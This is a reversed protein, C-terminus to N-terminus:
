YDKFMFSVFYIDTSELTFTPSPQRNNQPLRSIPTKKEHFFYVCEFLKVPDTLHRMINSFFIATLLDKTTGIFMISLM